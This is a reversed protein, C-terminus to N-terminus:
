GHRAMAPAESRFIRRIGEGALIAVAGVGYAVFDIPDFGTGLVVRAIANGHLGLTGLLDLFQAIEVVIAILLALATATRVRIRFAARLALYVLLVALSDGGHPRVITDRVGLAIVLELGLIAM